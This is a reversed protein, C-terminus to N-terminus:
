KTSVFFSLVVCVRERVCVCNGTGGVKLIDHTVKVDKYNVIIIKVNINDFKLLIESCTRM